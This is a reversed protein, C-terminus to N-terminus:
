QRQSSTKDGFKSNSLHFQMEGEDGSTTRPGQPPPHPKPHHKAINDVMAAMASWSELVGGAGAGAGAGASAGAGAGSSTGDGTGGGGDNAGQPPKHTEIHPPEVYCYDPMALM